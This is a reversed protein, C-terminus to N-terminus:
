NGVPEGQAVDMAQQLSENEEAGAVRVLEEARELTIEPHHQRISLWFQYVEGHPTALWENIEDLSVRRGRRLEQYAESLLHRQLPEPLHALKPIVADLPDPRRSLLFTEIEAYDCIRLPALRYENGGITLHYEGAALAHLGDM